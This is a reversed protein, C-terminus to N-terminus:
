RATRWRNGCQLQCKRPRLWRSPDCFPSCPNAVVRDTWAAPWPVPITRNPRVVFDEGLKRGKKKKSGKLGLAELFLDDMAGIDTQTKGGIFGSCNAEGCYCTQADHRCRNLSDTMRSQAPNLEPDNRVRISGRQLQVYDGRRSPRGAQHLDGHPTKKGGGM